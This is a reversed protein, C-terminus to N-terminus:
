SPEDPQICEPQVGVGDLSTLYIPLGASPLGIVSFGFFASAGVELFFGLAM